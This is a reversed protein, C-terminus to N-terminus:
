IIDYHIVNCKDYSLITYTNHESSNIPQHIHIYIYIYIYVYMCVYMCIYIYIYSIHVVPIILLTQEDYRTKSIYHRTNTM